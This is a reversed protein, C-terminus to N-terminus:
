EWMAWVETESAKQTAQYFALSAGMIPIVETEPSSRSWVFSEGVKRKNVAAAAADLAVDRRITVRQEIVADYFGSCANVVDRTTLGIVHVGVAELDAKLGGAPGGVDL